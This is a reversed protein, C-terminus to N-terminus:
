RRAEFKYFYDEVMLRSRDSQVADSIFSKIQVYHRCQPNQNKSWDFIGRIQAPFSQYSHEKALIKDIGPLSKADTERKLPWAPSVRVSNTHLEISFLFEVRGSEDVWCPPYDRGGRADLQKKCFALQGKTETVTKKLEDIDVGSKAIEKYNKADKLIERIKNIEQGPTIEENLEEKVAKVTEDKFTLATSAEDKIIKEKDSSTAAKDIKNKLETLATFQANLDDVKKKLRDREEHVNEAAILRNFVDDPNAVGADGLMTIVEKRVNDCYTAEREKKELITIRKQAETLKKKEDVVLFGLILLLIFVITFAIETLSLQFVQDKNKM